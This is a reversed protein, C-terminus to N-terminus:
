APRKLSALPQGTELLTKMRSLILPWGTQGGELYSADVPAAHFESVTLRTVEGLPEIEFTVVAEPLTQYTGDIMAAEWAISLFRPPESTVVKGESELKGDPEFAAFRGGSQWDSEIRRGLTQRTLEPETLAAWVREPSAAIYTVYVFDPKDM